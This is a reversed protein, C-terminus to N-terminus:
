EKKKLLNSHYMFHKTTNNTTFLIQNWANSESTRDAVVWIVSDKFLYIVYTEM